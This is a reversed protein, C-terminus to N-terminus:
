SLNILLNSHFLKNSMVFLFGKDIIMLETIDKNKEVEM